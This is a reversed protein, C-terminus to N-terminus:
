RDSAERSTVTRDTSIVMEFDGRSSVESLEETRIHSRSGKFAWLVETQLDKHCENM